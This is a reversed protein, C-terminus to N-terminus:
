LKSAGEKSSLPNGQADVLTDPPTRRLLSIDRKDTVQQAHSINKELESLYLNHGNFHKELYVYYSGLDQQLRKTAGKYFGVTKYILDSASDFIVIEKGDNDRKRAIGGLVFEPFLRDHCKELYCRDAMQALIDASGLLNGVLQYRFPIQIDGIPMEYGTYHLMRSAIRADESMGIQSLYAELFTVGRSVHTVTYEAGRKHRTDGIHRIYGVDHYLAAVVGLRFMPENLRADNTARKCGDMLRAMALTVDLVHQVDHYDTDCAHYGPHAGRYLTVLDTFAQMLSPDPDRQYLGQYLRCVEEAVQAHDTTNIRDTVDFENRRYKDM